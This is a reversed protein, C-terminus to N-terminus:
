RLHRHSCPLCRVASRVRGALAFPGVNEKVCDKPLAGPQLVGNYGADLHPLCREAPRVRGALAM